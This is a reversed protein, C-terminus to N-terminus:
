FRLKREEGARLRSINDKHKWVILIAMLLVPFFASIHGFVFLLIPATIMAIISGLSVYRSILVVIGWIVILVASIGPTLVLLTGLATAVGKGGKFQFWIPFIHGIVAFLAVTALAAPGLNCLEGIVVAIAGKLMDGILTIIGAAKGNTRLVNTAGANGSGQTRPDAQKLLKATIVATSISGLFYAAILCIITTM